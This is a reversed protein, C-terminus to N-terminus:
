GNCSNLFEGCAILLMIIGIVALALLVCDIIILVLAFTSNRNKSRAVMALIFSAIFCPATGGPYMATIFFSAVLLILSIICLNNVDNEQPPIMEDPSRQMLMNNTTGFVARGFSMNNMVHYYEDPTLFHCARGDEARFFRYTYLLEERTDAPAFIVHRGQYLEYECNPIQYFDVTM